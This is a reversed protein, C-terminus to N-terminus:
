DWPGPIRVGTTEALIQDRVQKKLGPNVLGSLGLNAIRVYVESHEAEDLVAEVIIMSLKPLPGGGRAVYGTISSIANDSINEPDVEITDSWGLEGLVRLAAGM